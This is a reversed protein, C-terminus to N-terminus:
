FYAAYGFTMALECRYRCLSTTTSPLCADVHYCISRRTAVHRWSVMDDTVHWLRHCTTPATLDAVPQLHRRTSQAESDAVPRLQRCRTTTCYRKTQVLLTHETPQRNSSSLLSHLRHQCGYDNWTVSMTDIRYGEARGKWSTQLCDFFWHDVTKLTKCTRNVEVNSTFTNRASNQQEMSVASVSKNNACWGSDTIALYGPWTIDAASLLGRRNSTM